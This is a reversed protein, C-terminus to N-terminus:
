IGYASLGYVTGVYPGAHGVVSFREPASVIMQYASLGFTNTFLQYMGEQMKMPLMKVVTGGIDKMTLPMGGNSAVGNVCSPYVDALKWAVLYNIIQDRKAQQITQPASAWFEQTGSWEAYVETVTDEVANTPLGVFSDRYMFTQATVAM